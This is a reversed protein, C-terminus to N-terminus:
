EKIQIPPTCLFNTLIDRKNATSTCLEMILMQIAPRNGARVRSEVHAAAMDTLKTWPDHNMDNM